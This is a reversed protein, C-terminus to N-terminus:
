FKIANLHLPIFVEPNFFTLRVYSSVEARCDAKYKNNRLIDYDLM